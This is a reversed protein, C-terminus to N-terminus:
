TPPVERLKGLAARLAQLGALFKPAKAALMMEVGVVTVRGATQMAGQVIPACNESHVAFLNRRFGRFLVGTGLAIPRRCVVCVGLKRPESAM